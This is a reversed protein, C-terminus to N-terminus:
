TNLAHFNLHIFGNDHDLHYIHLLLTYTVGAELHLYPDDYWDYEIAFWHKNMNGAADVSYLLCEAYGNMFGHISWDGSVAPAITLTLETTDSSLFFKRTESGIVPTDTDSEDDTFTIAYDFSGDAGEPVFAFRVDYMDPSYGLAEATAAVASKSFALGRVDDLVLIDIDNLIVEDNGDEMPTHLMLSVYYQFQIDKETLHYGIAYLDTDEMTHTLDELVIQGDAGNTNELGCRSCIYHNSDLWCWDHGYPSITAHDNLVSECVPCTTSRIGDQTCTPSLVTQNRSHHCTNTSWEDAGDSNTYHCTRECTGSFNYTYEFRETTGDYTKEEFIVYQYGMYYTYAYSGFKLYGDSNESLYSYLYGNEGFPAAYNNDYIRENRNWYETGDARIVRYFEKESGNEDYEGIDEKLRNYGNDLTNQVILEYKFRFGSETFHDAYMYSSGCDPCTYLCGERSINGNEHLDHYETYEYAHWQTPSGIKFTIEYTCTGTEPDYGFQWTQYRQAACEDEIRLYYNAYRIRYACQVPDTVACTYIYSDHDYYNSGDTTPVSGTLTNEIWNDTYSHDFECHSDLELEVYYRCACQLLIASGHCVAGGMAPDTLDLRETEFTQHWTTYEEHTDGCDRCTYVIYAGDKCSTSGEDLRCTILYDHAEESTEHTIAAVLQEGVTLTVTTYTIRQCTASDHLSYSDTQYRLGCSDCTRVSVEHLRNEEDMYENYSSHDYHFSREIGSYKGCPCAYYILIGGCSSYASLDYFERTLDAHRTYYDFRSEGCVSCARSVRVGSECDTESDFEFTYEFDHLVDYGTRHAKIEAIVTDGMRFTIDDYRNYYCGERRKYEDDIKTLGCVSCSYTIVSHRTGFEDVYSTEDVYEYACSNYNINASSECPCVYRTFYGKCAGFETLDIHELQYSYHYSHYDSDSQGCATCVYEVLVGNECNQDNDFTYTYVYEHQAKRNDIYSLADVIVRDNIMMTSSCYTTRYCGETVTYLDYTITLGCESCIRSELTHTIGNDDVYTERGLYVDACYDSYIGNENGCPCSYYELYGYCAGFETLDYRELTNTIHRAYYEEYHEGCLTCVSEVTVGNECNEDSDFTYDYIYTHETDTSYRYTYPGAVIEDGMMFTLARYTVRMCGNKVTYQDRSYNLDCEECFYHRLTHTLGQEDVYESTKSQWACTDFEVFGEYECPCSYVHVHGYCAGLGTLDIDAIDYANHWTYHHSSTQGCDRCVMDVTVGNECNRDADFTYTYTNNHNSYSDELFLHDQLIVKDGLTITFSLYSNRMCDEEVTFYDYEAMMGCQNCLYIKVQHQIGNEDVYDDSSIRNDACIDRELYTDTGCPCSFFTLHGSCGGQEALDITLGELREHYTNHYSKTYDCSTCVRTITVGNECNEDADFVFSDTFTHEAYSRRLYRYNDLIVTDGISMTVTSYINRYCGEMIEYSDNVRTLGCDRCTYTSVTHKYGFEDMYTTEDYFSTCDNMYLSADQGCPCSYAEVYGYCAGHTTLDVDLIQMRDHETSTYIAIPDGCLTCTRFIIIGDECSVSGEPFIATEDFYNHHCYASAVTGKTFTYTIENGEGGNLYGIRYVYTKGATLEYTILFNSSSGGDDDSRLKKLVGDEMVYLTAYTDRNSLSTISYVGNETPTYTFEFYYDKNYDTTEHYEPTGRLLKKETVLGCAQCTSTILYEGNETMTIDIKADHRDTTHTFATKYLTADDRKLVVTITRALICGSWEDSITLDLSFGCEECVRTVDQDLELLNYSNYTLSTNVGCPCARHSFNHYCDNDGEYFSFLSMAEHADYRRNTTEGCLTCTGLAGYGQSCDVGNEYVFEYEYQHAYSQSERTFDLVIEGNLTLTTQRYHITTCTNPAEIWRRIVCIAGCKECTQTSVTYEIGNGDTETTEVTEGYCNTYFEYVYTLENCADCISGYARGECVSHESLDISIDHFSPHRHYTHVRTEGCKECARTEIVGDTCATGLMQYEYVYEHEYCRDLETATAILTDGYYVSTTLYETYECVTGITYHDGIAHFDCKSCSISLIEHVIGQEDTVTQPEGEVLDCSSEIDRIYTITGCTNCRYVSITGGCAGEYESLDINTRQDDHEVDMVDSFSIPGVVPVNDRYMTIAGSGIIQCSEGFSSNIVIDLVIGCNKCQAQLHLNYTGDPNESEDEIASDEDWECLCDEEIIKELDLMSISTHEGCECAQYHLTPTCIGLASLDLEVPQLIHRCSPEERGCGTCIGSEYTHVNTAPIAETKEYGCDACTYLISGPTQCTAPTTTGAEFRHATVDAREGCSTCAHWHFKEDSGWAEAPTHAYDKGYPLTVTDEYVEGNHMVRAIYVITGFSMCDPLSIEETVEVDDYRTSHTGDTDHECRITFAASSHDKSWEFTHVYSHGLPEVLKDQYTLECNENQCSYLTYGATTCTAPILTEMMEHSLQPLSETRTIGCIENRCVYVNEGPAMCTAPTESTLEWAHKIAAITTKYTHMCNACTHVVQGNETCTAPTTVATYNHGLATQEADQYSDACRICFHLTYGKETCTPAVTTHSYNHGYLECRQKPTLRTVTYYSFHNTRFTVYGNNYTAKISTLEGKDDIYWVAINDVNEGKELTYPLTVTVFGDEGFDTINQNGDNIVFNYIPNNGVQALEETSLGLDTRDDDTLTGASITVDKDGINDAANGLSINAGGELSIETDKLQSINTSTNANLITVSKTGSCIPCTDTRKGNTVTGLIWNHGTTTDIEIVETKTYGCDTCTLTKVGPAQCTAPTTIAATYKEHHEVTEGTVDGGCDACTYHHVYLCTEGEKLVLTPAGGAINHALPAGVSEDKTGGCTPCAYHNVESSTCSAPTTGTLKYSHGLPDTMADCNECSQGQECTAAPIDWEHGTPDVYSDIQKKGCNECTHTTYGQATCTPATVTDVYKHGTAPIMETKTMGCGPCTSTKEGSTMCGAEVTIVFGDFIHSTKEGYEHGCTACVAAGACTATGGSCVGSETHSADHECVRTHVGNEATWASWKHGLAEGDTKKCVSCTKAIECTATDWKHGLAEGDTAQCLSCTKPLECTADIWTHACTSEAEIETETETAPASETAAATESETTDANPTNTEEPTTAEVTGTEPQTGTIADTENGSSTSTRDCGSMLITCIVMFLAFLSLCIRVHHRMNGELYNSIFVVM